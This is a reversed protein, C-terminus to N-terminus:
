EDTDEKKPAEPKEADQPPIETPPHKGAYRNILMLVLYILGMVVIGYGLVLLASGFDISEATSTLLKSM